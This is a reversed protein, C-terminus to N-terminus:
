EDDDGGELDNEINLIEEELGAIFAQVDAPKSSGVLKEIAPTLKDITVQLDTKKSELVALEQSLRAQSEKLQELKQKADELKM